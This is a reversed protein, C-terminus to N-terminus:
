STKEKLQRCRQSWMHRMLNCIMVILLPIYIWLITTLSLSINASNPLDLRYSGTKDYHRITAVVVMAECIAGMPYLPIFLSYRCWTLSYIDIDFVRLAYFPYRFIEVSSWVLLLAYAYPSSSIRIDPDSLFFGVVLRGTTQILPMLPGGPVLGLMPHITELLQTYTLLKILFAAGTITDDDITGSVGKIILIICVKLFMIFMVLNYLFLYTRKYDPATRVTNKSGVSTQTDKRHDYKMSNKKSPNTDSPCTDKEKKGFIDILNKYRSESPEAQQDTYDQDTEATDDVSDSDSIGQYHDFDVRLWPLRAKDRTLRTWNKQARKKILILVHRGIPECNFAKEVSGFFEIRFGYKGQGHSGKANASFTFVKGTKDDISAELDEAETLDIRLTINTQSQSWHVFPHLDIELNSIHSKSQKIVRSSHGAEISDTDQRSDQPNICSLNQQDKQNLNAEDSSDTQASNRQDSPISRM